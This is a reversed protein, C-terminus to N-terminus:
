RTTPSGIIHRTTTRRDRWALRRAAAGLWSTVAGGFAAIAKARDDRARAVYFDYLAPTLRRPILDQEM